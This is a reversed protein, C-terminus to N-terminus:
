PAAPICLLLRYHSANNALGLFCITKGDASIVGSVPTSNETRGSVWTGCSTTFTANKKDPCTHVVYSPQGAPTTTLPNNPFTCTSGPCSGVPNGAGNSTPAQPGCDDNFMLSYCNAAPCTGSAGAVPTCLGGVSASAACTFSEIILPATWAVTGAAAAKKIMSRRDIRGPGLPGDQESV